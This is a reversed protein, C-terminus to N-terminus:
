YDLLSGGHVPLHLPKYLYVCLCLIMHSVGAKANIDQQGNDLIEKVRRQDGDISAGHLAAHAHTPPLAICGTM